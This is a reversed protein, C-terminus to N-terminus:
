ALTKKGKKKTNGSAPAAKKAMGKSKSTSPPVARTMGETTARGIAKVPEAPRVAEPPRPGAIPAEGVPILGVEGLSGGAAYLARVMTEFSVERVTGSEAKAVRAQTSKMRAAVQAQTLGNRERAAKIERRLRSRLDLLDREHPGLEVLDAADGVWYGRSELRKREAQDMPDVRRM